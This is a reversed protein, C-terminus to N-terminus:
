IQEKNNVIIPTLKYDEKEYNNLKDNIYSM